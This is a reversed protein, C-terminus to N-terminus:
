RERREALLKRLDEFTHPADAAQGLLSLKVRSLDLDFLLWESGAHTIVRGAREPSTAAPKPKPALQMEPRTAHETASCACLCLVGCLIRLRAKTRTIAPTVDMSGCEVTSRTWGSSDQFAGQPTCSGPM